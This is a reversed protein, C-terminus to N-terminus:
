QCEGCRQQTMFGTAHKVTTCIIIKKILFHEKKITTYVQHMTHNEVLGIVDMIDTLAAADSRETNTHNNFEGLIIM